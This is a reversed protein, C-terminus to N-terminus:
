RLSRLKLESEFLYEFTEVRIKAEKMDKGWTYFGHGRLMFGYTQPHEKLYQSVEKAVAVMDQSNEFIPVVVESEHTTIGRLAKHMEYGETRLETAPAVLRSLVTGNLTHHHLVAGADSFTQYIMTHLLTEASPRKSGSLSKGDLDVLMVDDATLEGKHKGSVTIAVVEPDLRASLNGGTAPCLNFHNLFKGADVIQDAAEEFSVAHVLNAISILFLLTRM